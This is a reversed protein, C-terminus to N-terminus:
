RYTRCLSVDKIKIWTISGYLEREAKEERRMWPMQSLMVYCLLPKLHNLLGTTQTLIVISVSLKAYIVSQRIKLSMSMQAIQILLSHRCRVCKRDRIKMMRINTIQCCCPWFHLQPLSTLECLELIHM